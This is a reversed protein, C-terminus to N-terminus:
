YILRTQTSVQVWYFVEKVRKSNVVEFTKRWINSDSQWFCWLSQHKEWNSKDVAFNSIKLFELREFCSSKDRCEMSVIFIVALRNSWWWVTWLHTRPHDLSGPVQADMRLASEQCCCIPVLSLWECGYRSNAQHKSQTHTNQAHTFPLMFNEFLALM